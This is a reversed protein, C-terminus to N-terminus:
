CAATSSRWSAQRQEAARTCQDLAHASTNDYQNVSLWLFPFSLPLLPMVCYIPLTILMEM